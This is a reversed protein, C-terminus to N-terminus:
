CSMIKEPQEYGGVCVHGHSAWLMAKIEARQWAVRIAIRHEDIHAIGLPRPIVDDENAIEIALQRADGVLEACAVGECAMTQM